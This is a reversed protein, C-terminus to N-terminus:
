FYIKGCLDPCYVFERLMQEEDCLKLLTSFIWGKIRWRVWESEQHQWWEKNAAMAMPLLEAASLGLMFDVSTTADDLTEVRHLMTALVQLVPQGMLVVCAVCMIVTM